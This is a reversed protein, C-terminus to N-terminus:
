IEEEKSKQRNYYKLSYIKVNETQHLNLVMRGQSFPLVGVVSLLVTSIVWKSFYVFRGTNLTYSNGKSM